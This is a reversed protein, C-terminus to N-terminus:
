GFARLQELARFHVEEDYALQDSWAVPGAQTLGEAMGFHGPRYHAASGPDEPLPLIRPPDGAVEWSKLTSMDADYIDTTLRHEFGHLQDSGVFHMKGALITQYGALRLHHLFTPVLAPLETDHDYSAIRWCLQGTVLSARSPACLPFNCYANQFVIGQDSLKQLNPTLVDRNGYPSTALASLQDAM